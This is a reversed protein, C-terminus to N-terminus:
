YSWMTPRPLGDDEMTCADLHIFRGTGKQQIGIGTLYPMDAERAASNFASVVELLRHADERMAAIDAAKGRTHAGSTSGSKSAEAPHNICRYGSTIIIPKGYMDRIADLLYMFGQDMDSKGCGCKCMMEKATFYKATWM